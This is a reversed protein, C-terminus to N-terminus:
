LLTKRRSALNWFSLAQSPRTPLSVLKASSSCPPWSAFEQLLFFFFLLALWETALLPSLPTHTPKSPLSLVDKMQKYVERVHPVREGEEREPVFFLLLLTVVAYVLACGQFFSGLEVVGVGDQAPLGLVPRLYQNSFDASNFALFVTFSLFQGASLGITQCTSSYGKSEESLMTIAWGDVAIDQTATFFVLAFFFFALFTLPVEGELDQDIRSGIWFLMAGVVAQIPVIWSKRRGFGPLLEPIM